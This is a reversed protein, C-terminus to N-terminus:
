CGPGRSDAQCGNNVLVTKAQGALATFPDASVALTGAIGRWAQGAFRYEAAYSVTSVIVFSGSAAYRHSTSTDSFEALNQTAWPEGGSPSSLTAGDGFDWSFSVPTFRVDAAFGLLMGSRVHTEAAAFFNTPLGVVMWGNPEMGTTSRAPTFNVLDTISVSLNPDCPSNPICNIVYDERDILAPGGITGPVGILSGTGGSGNEDTSPDEGFSNAEHGNGNSGGDIGASVDVGGGNIQGNSAPPVCLGASADEFTCDNPIAYAFASTPSSILAAVAVTLLLKHRGM